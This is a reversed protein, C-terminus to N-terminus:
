AEVKKERCRPTLTTWQRADEENETYFEERSIYFIIGSNFTDLDVFM